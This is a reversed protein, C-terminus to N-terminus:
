VHAISKGSAAHDILDDMLSKLKLNFVRTLLDPRDSTQESPRLIETIEPWKPNPTLTIFLDPASYKAFISISDTCRERMNRPSGEFSSPLIVPIGAKVVYTQQM